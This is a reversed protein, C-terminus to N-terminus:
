FITKTFYNGLACNIDSAAVAVINSASSGNIDLVAVPSSTGIGVNGNSAIRMKENTAASVPGVFFQIDSAPTGNTAIKLPAAITGNTGVYNTSSVTSNNAPVVYTQSNANIAMLVGLTTASFLNKKM